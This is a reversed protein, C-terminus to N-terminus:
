TLSLLAGHGPPPPQRRHHSPRGLAAPRILFHIFHAPWSQQARRQQGANIRAWDYGNAAARVHQQSIVIYSDHPGVQEVIALQGDAGTGDARPGWEAVSGVSPRRDIRTGHVGARRPWQSASGLLYRPTRVGFQASEVYAAYNTSEDGPKMQWFSRRQSSGYGYSPDGHRTCGRYGSCLVGSSTRGAPPSGALAPMATRAIKAGLSAIALVPAVLILGALVPGALALGLQPSIQRVQAAALGLGSRRRTKTGTAAATRRAGPLVLM